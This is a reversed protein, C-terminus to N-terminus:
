KRDLVERLKKTNEEISLFADIWEATAILIITWLVAGILLALAALLASGGLNTLIGYPALSVPSVLITITLGIGGVFTIWGIVRMLLALTRLMKFRGIVGYKKMEKVVGKLKSM